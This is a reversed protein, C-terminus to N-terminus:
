SIRFCQLGGSVVGYLFNAAAVHDIVVPNGFQCVDGEENWRRWSECDRDTGVLDSGHFCRIRTKRQRKSTFIAAPM